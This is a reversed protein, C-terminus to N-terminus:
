ISNSNPPTRKSFLSRFMPTDPSFCGQALVLVLLLCDVNSALELFLVWWRAVRTGWTPEPKALTHDRSLLVYFFSPYFCPILLSFMVAKETGMSSSHGHRAFINSEFDAKRELKKM